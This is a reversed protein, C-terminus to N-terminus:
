EHHEQERARPTSAEVESAPGRIAPEGAANVPSADWIGIPNSYIWAVDPELGPAPPLWVELRYVGARHVQWRLSSQGTAIRAGDRFLRLQAGAPAAGPLAANLVLDDRLPLMSGMPSRISPASAREAWFRFGRPDGLLDIALYVRGRRMADSVAAADVRADRVLPTALMVHNSGVRFPALYGAGAGGLGAPFGHADSGLLGIRLREPTSARDWLPVAANPRATMALLALEPRVLAMLVLGAARVGGARGVDRVTDGFNLVELGDPAREGSLAGRWRSVRRSPHAAISLAGSPHDSTMKKLSSNLDAASLRGRDAASLRGRDAAPLRGRDADELPLPRGDLPYLALHGHDTSREEGGIVLLDGRYCAGTPVAATTMHDTVAIFALRASSAASVVQELSGHGDSASTHVHLAGRVDWPLDPDGSQGSPPSAPVVREAWSRGTALGAALPPVLVGALILFILSRRSRRM